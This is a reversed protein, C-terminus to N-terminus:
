SKDEKLAELEGDDMPYGANKRWQLGRLGDASEQETALRKMGVGGEWNAKHRRMNEAEDETGFYPFAGYGSVEIHWWQRSMVHGREVPATRVKPVV